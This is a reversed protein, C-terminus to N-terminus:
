SKRVKKLTKEAWSRLESGDAFLKVDKLPHISSVYNIAGELPLTEDRKLVYLTKFNSIVLANRDRVITFVKGDETLIGCPKEVMNDTLEHLFIENKKCTPPQYIVNIVPKDPEPSNKLLNM